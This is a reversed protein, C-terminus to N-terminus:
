RWRGAQIYRFERQNQQSNSTDTVWISWHAASFIDRLKVCSLVESSYKSEGTEFLMTILQLSCKYCSILQHFFALFFHYKSQFLYINTFNMQVKMLWFKEFIDTKNIKSIFNLLHESDARYITPPEPNCSCVKVPFIWLM